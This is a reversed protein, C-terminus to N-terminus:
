WPSGIGLAPNGTGIDRAELDYQQTRILIQLPSFATILLDHILLRYNIRAHSVRDDISVVAM